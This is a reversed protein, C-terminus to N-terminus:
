PLFVKNKYSFCTTETKLVFTFCKTEPASFNNSAKLIYTVQTM